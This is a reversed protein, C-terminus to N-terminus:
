RVRDVFFDGRKDEFRMLYHGLAGKRIEISRGEVKFYPLKSTMRWRQGNELIYLKKGKVRVVRTVLVPSDKGGGIEPFGFRDWMSDERKGFEEERVKAVEAEVEKRVESAVESRIEAAVEARVEEEVEGRVTAVVESRAEEVIESAAQSVYRSIAQNLLVRQELTLEDIGSAAMEEESLIKELGPFGVAGKESAWSFACGLVFFSVVFIKTIPIRM